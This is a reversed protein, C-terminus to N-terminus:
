DGEQATQEGQNLRRDPGDFHIRAFGGLRSAVRPHWTHLDTLTMNTTVVTPLRNGERESLVLYLTEATWDSVKEGGIDDLVVAWSGCAANLQEGTGDGRGIAVRLEHLWRPANLWLASAVWHHGHVFWRVDPHPEGVPTWEMEQALMELFWAAAAWTKGRGPPGYLLASENLHVGKSVEPDLSARTAAWFREPLGKARILAHLEQETPLKSPKTPPGTRTPGPSTALGQLLNKVQQGIPQATDPM